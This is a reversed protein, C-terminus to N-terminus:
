YTITNCSSPVFYRGKVGERLKGYAAYTCRTIQMKEGVNRATQTNILEQLGVFSPGFPPMKIYGGLLM